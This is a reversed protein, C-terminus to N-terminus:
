SNSAALDPVGIELPSSRARHSAETLAHAIRGLDRGPTTHASTTYGKEKVVGTYEAKTHSGVTGCTTAEGERKGNTSDVTYGIGTVTATVRVFRSAGACKHQLDVLPLGPPQGAVTINCNGTLV